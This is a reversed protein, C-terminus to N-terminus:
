FDKDIIRYKGRKSMDIYGKDRLIQLKRSMLSGPYGVDEGFIKMVLEPMKANRLEIATVLMKSGAVIKLAELFETEQITLETEQIAFM